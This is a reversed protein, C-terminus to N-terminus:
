RPEPPGAALIWPWDTAPLTVTVPASPPMVVDGLRAIERRLRYWAEAEPACVACTTLQRGHRCDITRAM